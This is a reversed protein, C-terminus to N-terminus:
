CYSLINNLFRSTMSIRSNIEEQRSYVAHTTLNKFQVRSESM